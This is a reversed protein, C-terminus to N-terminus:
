QGGYTRRYYARLDADSVGPNAERAAAMFQTLSPRAGAAPAASSAAPAAAGAAPPKARVETEIRKRIDAAQTEQTRLTEQLAALKANQASSRKEAPIKSLNELQMRTLGMSEQISKYPGDARLQGAVATAIQAENPATAPKQGGEGVGM